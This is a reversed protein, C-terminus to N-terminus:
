AKKEIIIVLPASPNTKNEKKIINFDLSLTKIFEKILITEKLGEDHGPYCTIVIFMGKKLKTLLKKLTAITDFALTTIEKDGKPLYGLNFVVGKFDNIYNFINIFSDHILRYNDRNNELLLKETNKLALKQIDFGYVFSALKSLLLTDNGNGITADIVIDNKTVNNILYNRVFERMPKKM